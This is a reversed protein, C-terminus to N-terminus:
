SPDTTFALIFWKKKPRLSIFLLTGIFILPLTCIFFRFVYSKIQLIFHYTIRIPINHLAYSVSIFVSTSFFFVYIINCYNKFVEDIFNYMVHHKLPPNKFAVGISNETLICIEFYFTFHNYCIFTNNKHTSITVCVSSDNLCTVNM